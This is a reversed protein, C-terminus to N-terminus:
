AGPRFEADPNLELLRTQLRASAEDREAQAEVPVIECRMRIKSFPKPLYFRDWSRRLRWASDFDAGVLLM